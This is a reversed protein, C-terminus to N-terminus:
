NEVIEYDDECWESCEEILHKRMSESIEEKSELMRKFLGILQLPTHHDEEYVDKWRTNSTDYDIFEGDIDSERIYNYQDTWIPLTKSLTQTITVEFEHEPNDHQNWPADSDFETGPPYYGSEIM